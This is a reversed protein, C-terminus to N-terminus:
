SAIRLQIEEANLAVITIGLQDALALVDDADLLITQDSEIALVRGGAEHMTQITELGITPVDFRRDQQPKAVKIVTFGGRRCLTGARRIAQDTGEIAEVAIVATDNVIVTQGIDLRGMEKALEWGFQIDRWQDPSPKRRTLFGHNVLLEPCFDLASHFHIDDRAFERIVALLITDDKKNQRAYRYWMHLTRRDPLLKLFRWPRFLVTKEIKGAMVVNHVGARKFLRIARGLRALGATTFHDCSSALEASVMGHVGVAFVKLGRRQAAQAFVLPFRGAGALLGIWGNDDQRSDTAEPRESSRNATTSPEITM